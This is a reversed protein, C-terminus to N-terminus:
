NFQVNRIRCAFSLLIRENKGSPASRDRQRRGCCANSEISYRISSEFIENKNNGADSFGVLHSEISCRHGVRIVNGDFAVYFCIKDSFSKMVKIEPYEVDDILARKTRKM